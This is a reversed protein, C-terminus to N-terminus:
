RKLVSSARRSGRVPCGSPVTAVVDVSSSRVMAARSRSAWGAHSASPTSPRAATSRRHFSAHAARRSSIRVASAPSVPRQRSLTWSNSAKRPVISRQAVRAGVSSLSGLRKVLVKPKMSMSLFRRGNGSAPMMLGHFKGRTSDVMSMSGATMAPVATSSLGLSTVGRNARARRLDSSGTGSSSDTNAMAM